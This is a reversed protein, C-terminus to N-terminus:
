FYLDSYIYYMIATLNRFYSLWLALLLTGPSRHYTIDFLYWTIVHLPWTIAHMLWTNLLPMTSIVIMYEIYFFLVSVPSRYSYLFCYRYLPGTRTYSFHYMKFFLIFITKLSKVVMLSLLITSNDLLCALMCALTCGLSALRAPAFSVYM